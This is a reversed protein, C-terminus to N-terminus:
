EEVLAEFGAIFATRSDEDVDGYVATIFTAAIESKDLASFDHGAQWEFDVLSNELGVPTGEEVGSEVELVMAGVYEGLHQPGTFYPM